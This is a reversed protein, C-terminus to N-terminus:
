EGGILDPCSFYYGMLGASLMNPILLQLAAFGHDKDRLREVLPQGGMKWMARYENLPFDLGIKGYLEAHESPLILKLLLLYTRTFTLIEPMLSLVM